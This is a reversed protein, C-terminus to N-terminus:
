GCPGLGRLRAQNAAPHIRHPGHRATPRRRISRPGALAGGLVRHELVLQSCHVASTLIPEPNRSRPRRLLPWQDARRVTDSQQGASNLYATTSHNTLSKHLRTRQWPFLNLDNIKFFVDISMIENTEVALECVASGKRRVAVNDQTVRPKRVLKVRRFPLAAYSSKGTIRRQGKWTRTGARRTGSECSDRPNRDPYQVNM